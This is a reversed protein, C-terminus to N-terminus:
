FFLKRFVHSIRLKGIFDIMRTVGETVAGIRVDFFYTTASHSTAANHSGSNEKLFKAFDNEGPYNESGLFVCHELYHALGPMDVPDSLSGGLVSIAAAENQANPDSFHSLESECQPYTKKWM